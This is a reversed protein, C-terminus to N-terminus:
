NAQRRLFAPIDLLDLDKAASNEVSKGDKKSEEVSVAAPESPRTVPTTEAKNAENRFATPTDYNIQSGRNV